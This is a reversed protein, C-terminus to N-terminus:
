SSATLAVHAPSDQCNSAIPCDVFLTSFNYGPIAHSADKLITSFAALFLVHDTALPSLLLALAALEMQMFAALNSRSAVIASIWTTPIVAVLARVTKIDQAIFMEKTANITLEWTNM